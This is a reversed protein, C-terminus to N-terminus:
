KVKKMRAESFIIPKKMMSFFVQAGIGGILVIAHYEDPSLDYVVKEVKIETGLM